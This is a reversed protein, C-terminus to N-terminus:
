ACGCDDESEIGLTYIDVYAPQTMRHLRGSWIAKTAMTPEECCDEIDDWFADEAADIQDDYWDILVNVSSMFVDWAADECNQRWTNCNAPRPVLAMCAAYDDICEALDDLLTDQYETFLTDYTGRASCIAAKFADCADAVCEADPVQQPDNCSYPGQPCSTIGPDCPWSQAAAPAALLFLALLTRKM